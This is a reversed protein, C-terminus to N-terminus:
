RRQRRAWIDAARVLLNVPALLILAGALVWGMPRMGNGFIAGYHFGAPSPSEANGIAPVVIEFGILVFVALGVHLAAIAVILRRWNVPERSSKLARRQM